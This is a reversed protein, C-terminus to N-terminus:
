NGKEGSSVFMRHGFEKWAKDSRALTRGLEIWSGVTLDRMEYPVVGAERLASVVSEKGQLAIQRVSEPMGMVEGRLVKRAVSEATGTVYEVSWEPTPRMGTEGREKLLKMGEKGPGYGSNLNVKDLELFYQTYGLPTRFRNTCAPSSPSFHRPLRPPDKRHKGHKRHKKRRGLLSPSFILQLSTPLLSLLTSRSSLEDDEDGDDDDDSSAFDDGWGVAGDVDQRWDDRTANYEWVRVAPLYTPIVSPNVNVISHDSMNAEKQLGEYAERLDEAIKSVHFPGSRRTPPSFIDAADVFTFHDVNM